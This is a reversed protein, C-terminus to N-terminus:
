SSLAETPPPSTKPALDIPALAAPEPVGADDPVLTAQIRVPARPIPFGLLSTKRAHHAFACHDDYQRESADDGASQLGRAPDLSEPAVVDVSEGHACTRHPVLAQHALNQAQGAVYASALMAALARLNGLKRRSTRVGAFRLL